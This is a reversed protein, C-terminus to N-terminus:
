TLAHYHLQISSQSQAWNMQFLIAESLFSLIFILPVKKQM